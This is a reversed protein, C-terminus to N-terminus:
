VEKKVKAKKTSLGLGEFLYYIAFGWWMTYILYFSLIGLLTLVRDSSQEAQIGYFNYAPEVAKTMIENVANADKIRDQKQLPKIMGNLVNWWAKLLPKAQKEDAKYRAAFAGGKDNYMDDSDQLVKELLYKLNVTLTVREGDILAKGGAATILKVANNLLKQNKAADFNPDDKPKLDKLKESLSVPQSSVSPLNETKLGPIFYSSGKALHNFFNDSFQLGNMAKGNQDSGFIPSFITLLVGIFTVALLIGKVLAKTNRIMAIM